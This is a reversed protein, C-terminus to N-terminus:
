EVRILTAEGQGGGSCIAALGIGGGRRRLEYILHMLIRGGSAGIPHGLAIAGGNVNVIEPDVGLLRTSVLTVAAFAENIEVLNLDAATLGARALAQQGARAPVTHLAHPEESHQGQALITALVELGLAQAKERSMIVLASAGDSLGPANGATIVGDPEFAPRLAALKELSTDRRIPEDVAVTVEGKKQKVTVPTVEEAFLGRDWAAAARMHSRYAWEDLEARTLGYERAGQGGYTGMHVDGFACWLGDHIVGDVLRGHGMRYGRRADFLLYPANSMSEMGGAVVVEADGARIMLDALNVAWLSSACVKNVTESVVGYPLGAKHAAQRSPIQGAGAQVVQGMLVHDIQEPREDLRARRVAERIAVAGLDTASLDKLGGNFAGFPTRVASVVVAERRM